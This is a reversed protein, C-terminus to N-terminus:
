AQRGSADVAMALAVVNVRAAGARRLARACAEATAGTTLVDDVLLISRGAISSVGKASVAFAGQVNRRRQDASLGVQTQTQQRRELSGMAVPIGTERGIASALIAAQNFRRRWLRWRHLPVPVILDTEARFPQAASNMWRGFLRNADHRDAYKLGHVLKRMIGDHRAVARARDYAPPRALAAASVAGEGADYPLPIGLRDCLPARIFDIDSWCAACLADQDALPVKCGLCLPPVILDLLHHAGTVIGSRVVPLFRPAQRRHVSSDSEITM